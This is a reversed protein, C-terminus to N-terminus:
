PRLLSWLGYAVQERKRELPIIVGTNPVADHGAKTDLCAVRRGGPMAALRDVPAREGVLKM